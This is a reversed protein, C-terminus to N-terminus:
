WFDIHHSRGLCISGSEAAMAESKHMAQYSTMRSVCQQM